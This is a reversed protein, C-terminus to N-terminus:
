LSGVSGETPDSTAETSPLFAWSQLQAAAVQWDALLYRQAETYGKLYWDLFATTTSNVMTATRKKILGMVQSFDSHKTGGILLHYRDPTKVWGFPLLHTNPGRGVTWLDDRDGSMFLIPREIRAYGEATMGMRQAPFSDGYPSMAVFAKFRPDSLAVSQGGADSVPVGAIAQLTLAGFSHGVLAVQSLNARRCLHRPLREKELLELALIVEAVRVSLEKRSFAGFPTRRFVATWDSGSHVPSLVLYGHSALHKEVYRTAQAHAGLGPSVVVVPFGEGASLGLPYLATLAMERGLGPHRFVQQHTDVPYPGPEAKYLQRAVDAPGPTHRLLSRLNALPGDDDDEASDQGLLAETLRQSARLTKALIRDTSM